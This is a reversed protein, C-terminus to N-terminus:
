LKKFLALVWISTLRTQFLSLTRELPMLLPAYYPVFSPPIRFAMSAFVLLYAINGGYCQRELKLSVDHERQLHDINISAENDQFYKTDMRYWLKRLYDFFSGASPEWILLFGGPKLVRLMERIGDNVYPHLHHLSECIVFDFSSDAFDTDLMSACYVKNEPFRRSYHACQEESLDIGVIECECGQLAATNQGGGCMADLVQSGRLPIDRLFRHYLNRRYEIAYHSGFHRDYNGAITNYYEKQRVEIDSM